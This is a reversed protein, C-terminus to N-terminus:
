TILSCAFDGAAEAATPAPLDGRCHAAWIRSLFLFARDEARPDFVWDVYPFEQKLTEVRKILRDGRIKIRSKIRRPLKSRNPYEALEIWPFECAVVAHTFSEMRALERRFRDVEIFLNQALEATSGKREITVISELGQITYDGTPLTAVVTGACGEEAPFWWGRNPKERTDRIVVLPPIELSM